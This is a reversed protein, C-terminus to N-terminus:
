IDQAKTAAEDARGAALGAPIVPPSSPRFSTFLMRSYILSFCRTSTSNLKVMWPTDM